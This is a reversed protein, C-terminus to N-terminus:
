TNRANHSYWSARELSLLTQVHQLKGLNALLSGQPAAALGNPTMPAADAQLSSRMLTVIDGVHKLHAFAVQNLKGWFLEVDPPSAVIAPGIIYSIINAPDRAPGAPMEQQPALEHLTPPPVEEKRLSHCNKAILRAFGQSQSVVLQLRSDPMCADIHLCWDGCPFVPVSFLVDFPVHAPQKSGSPARSRRYVSHRLRRVRPGLQQGGEVMSVAQSFETARIMM